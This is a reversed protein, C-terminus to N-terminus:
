INKVFPGQISLGESEILSFFPTANCANLLSSFFIHMCSVEQCYRCRTRLATAASRKRLKDPPSAALPAADHSCGAPQKKPSEQGCRADLDKKADADASARGGLMPYNYEHMASLQVYSYNDIHGGLDLFDKSPSPIKGESTAAAVAARLWPDSSKAVTSIKESDLEGQQQRALYNLRHKQEMLSDQRNNVGGRTSSDSSSRSDGREVPLNLTQL